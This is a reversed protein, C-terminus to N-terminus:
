RGGPLLVLGAVLALAMALALVPVVYRAQHPFRQQILRIIHLM